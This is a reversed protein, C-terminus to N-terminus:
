ADLAVRRDLAHGVRECHQPVSGVMHRAEEHVVHALGQVLATLAVRSRRVRRADTQGGVPMTPATSPGERRSPVDGGSCDQWRRTAPAASCRSCPPLLRRLAPRPLPMRGTQRRSTPHGPASGRHRTATEPHSGSERAYEM